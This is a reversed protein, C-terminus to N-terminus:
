CQFFRRRRGAGCCTPSTTAGAEARSRRPIFRPAASKSSRSGAPRGCNECAKRRSKGAGNPGMVAVVEGERVGIDAGDLAVVGGYHVSIDVLELAYAGGNPQTPQNM